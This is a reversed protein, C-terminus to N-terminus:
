RLWEPLTQYGETAKIKGCKLRECILPWTFGGRRMEVMRRLEHASLGYSGNRHGWQQKTAYPEYEELPPLPPHAVFVHRKHALLSGFTM